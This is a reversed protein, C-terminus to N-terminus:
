DRQPLKPPVHVTISEIDEAGEDDDAVLSVSMRPLPRPVVHAAQPEDEVTAEQQSDQSSEPPVIKGADETSEM